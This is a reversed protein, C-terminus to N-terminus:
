CDRAAVRVRGRVEIALAKLDAVPEAGLVGSRAADGAGISLSFACSSRCLRFSRSVTM